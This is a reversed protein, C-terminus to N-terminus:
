GCKNLVPTKVGTVLAIGHRVRIEGGELRNFMTRRTGDRVALVLTQREEIPTGPMFIVAVELRDAAIRRATLVDYRNAVYGPGVDNIEQVHGAEVAVAVHPNDPSAPKDCDVAWNGFMGFSGFTQEAAANKAIDGTADKADAPRAAAAPMLAAAAIVIVAAIRM